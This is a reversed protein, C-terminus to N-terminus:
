LLLLLHSAQSAKQPFVPRMRARGRARIYCLTLWGWPGFVPQTNHSFADWRGLEYFVLVIKPRELFLTGGSLLVVHGNFFRQEHAEETLHWASLTLHFGGDNTSAKHAVWTWSKLSPPQVGKFFKLRLSIGPRQETFIPSHHDLVPWSIANSAIDWAHDICETVKKLPAWNMSALGWATLYWHDLVIAQQRMPIPLRHIEIAFVRADLKRDTRAPLSMDSPSFWHYVFVAQSMRELISAGLAFAGPTLIPRPALPAPM